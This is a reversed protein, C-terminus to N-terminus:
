DLAFESLYAEVDIEQVDPQEQKLLIFNELVLVDMNTAMFCRYADAPSEVIPEGRVNFSTNIVVSSGTREKFRRVIQCFRPNREMDITQVRASFDVHTIAPVVSRRQKLKDLTQLGDMGPLVGDLTILDPQIKELVDLAQEGDGVAHVEYGQRSVLAEMYDRVGPDDDIVLVRFRESM